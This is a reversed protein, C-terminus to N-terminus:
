GEADKMAQSRRAPSRKAVHVIEDPALCLKAQLDADDAARTKSIPFGAPSQVAQCLNTPQPDAV